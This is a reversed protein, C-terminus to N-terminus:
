AVKSEFYFAKPPRAGGPFADSHATLIGCTALLSITVVTGEIIVVDPLKGGGEETVWAM